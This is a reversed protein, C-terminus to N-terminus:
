RGRQAVLPAAIRRREAEGIGSDELAELLRNLRRTGEQRLRLLELATVQPATPRAAELERRKAELASLEKAQAVWADFYEALTKDGIKVREMAARAEASLRAAREVAEGGIRDYKAHTLQNLGGEALVAVFARLGQSLELDEEESLLAAGQAV